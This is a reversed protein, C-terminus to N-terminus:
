EASPEVASRARRRIDAVEAQELGLSELFAQHAEPHETEFEAHWRRMAAEDFGAQRLLAVWAAKDGHHRDGRFDPVALIRALARQQERIRSVEECLALLRRELLEAPRSRERRCSPDHPMLVTRIDALSLGADRLRRIARLRALEQEGYLRYGAASRGIPVLLGLSEYHLVSTRALGVRKGLQGLTLPRAHESTM